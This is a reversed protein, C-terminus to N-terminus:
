LVDRAGVGAAGAALLYYAGVPLLVWRPLDLSSPRFIGALLFLIGFVGFVVVSTAWRRVTLEGFRGELAFILIVLGLVATAPLRFWWETVWPELFFEQWALFLVLGSWGGVTLVTAAAGASRSM